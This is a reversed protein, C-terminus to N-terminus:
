ARVEEMKKRAYAKPSLYDLSSHPRRENFDEVAADARVRTELFTTPEQTWFYDAKLHGNTSEIMGNSEPRRKISAQLTIGIARMRDQFRHAVFQPGGDTRLVLGPARGTKPFRALVAGDVVDAAEMAGCSPFFGHGVIERTCADQALVLPCPGRDTTELYTIDMYWRENPRAAALSGSEPVRPRPYHAEKLLKEEQLIRHVRKRNVEWGEQRLVSHVRRYGFTIHELAVRRVARCLREEDPRQRPTPEHPDPYLARRTLGVFHAVRTKPVHLAIMRTM